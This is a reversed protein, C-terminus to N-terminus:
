IMHIEKSCALVHVIKCSVTKMGNVNEKTPWTQWKGRLRWGSTTARGASPTLCSFRDSSEVRAQRQRRAALARYVPM